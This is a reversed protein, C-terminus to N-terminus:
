NLDKNGILTDLKLKLQTQLKEQIDNFVKKIEQAREDKAKQVRSINDEVSIVLSNLEELRKQLTSAEERVIELHQEYVETIKKFKHYKHKEEFM